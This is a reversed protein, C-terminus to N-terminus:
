PGAPSLACAQADAGSGTDGRRSGQGFARMGHLKEIKGADVDAGAAAPGAADREPTLLEDFEAAGVATVTTMAARDPGFRDLAQVREDVVAVLLMEEGLGALGAHAALLGALGAVVDGELDREAGLDQVLVFLGDKGVEGADPLAHQQGLAAVAAPAVQAEFGRGVAGRGAGIRPLLADLARDPQAQFQDGIRSKHAQRVGALGGEEGGDRVGPRLDGVVREGGQDRVEADDADVPVFEDHGVNGAQDFAGRFAAAKAGLEEGMDFAALNQQMKDIARRRCDRLIELGDHGFKFCIGFDRPSLGRMTASFLVSAISAL